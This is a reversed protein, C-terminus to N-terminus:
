FVQRVTTIAIRLFNVNCENNSTIVRKLLNVATNVDLKHLYFRQYAKNREFQLQAIKYAIAITGVGINLQCYSFM